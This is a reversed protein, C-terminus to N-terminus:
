KEAEKLDAALMEKARNIHRTLADTLKELDSQKIAQLIEAHEAHEGSVRSMWSKKTSHIRAIRLHANLDDYVELLRRNGSLKVLSRHFESNLKDHEEASKSNQMKDVLRSLQGISAEDVNRLATEAALCELARRIDFTEAVDAATLNVVFTGSRPKIEVLGASALMALASKVPTPSVDFKKALFQVDLREGPLFDHDLIARRLAAFISDAARVREIQQLEAM